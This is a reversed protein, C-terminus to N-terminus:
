PVVWAFWLLLGVLVIFPWWYDARGLAHVLRYLPGSRRGTTYDYGPQQGFLYFARAVGGVMQLLVNLLSTGFWM